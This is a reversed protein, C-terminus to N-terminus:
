KIREFIRRFSARREAIANEQLSKEQKYKMNRYHYPCGYMTCNEDKFCPCYRVQFVVDPDTAAGVSTNHPVYMYHQVICATTEKLNDADVLATIKDQAYRVRKEMNRCSRINNTWDQIRSLRAVLRSKANM